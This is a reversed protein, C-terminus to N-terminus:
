LLFVNVVAKLFNVPVVGESYIRLLAYKYTPCSKCIRDM